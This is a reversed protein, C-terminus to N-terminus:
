SFTLRAKLWQELSKKARDKLKRSVKPDPYSEIFIEQSEDCAKRLATIQDVSVQPFESSEMSFYLDFGGTKREYITGVFLCGKMSVEVVEFHEETSVYDVDSLAM